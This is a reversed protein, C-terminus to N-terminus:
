LSLELPRTPDPRAECAVNVRPDDLHAIFLLCTANIFWKSSFFFSVAWPIFPVAAASYPDTVVVVLVGQLRLLLV